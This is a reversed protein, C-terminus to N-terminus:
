FFYGKKRSGKNLLGKVIIYYYNNFMKELESDKIKKLIEYKIKCLIQLTQALLPGPCIVVLGPLLQPLHVVDVIEVGGLVM